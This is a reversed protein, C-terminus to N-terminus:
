ANANQTYGPGNLAGLFARTFANAMEIKIPTKEVFKIYKFASAENKHLLADKVIAIAYIPGGVRIAIRALETAFTCRSQHFHFDHLATIGHASGSRRLKHMEVNIPVSKEAGAQAYSNGSRTIFVLDKNQPPAKAERMLRRVSCAYARLRELQARAIWVRGTVGFKTHIPPSGGPGVNLWFMDPSNPDPVARNLTQIKLDCLTGLRMGTFFGLTLMLFFEESAHENVFTLIKDRDTASVPLLGDELTEGPAHRNPIALDTSNVLITRDFGANDVVHIPIVREKWLTSDASLLGNEHIWRYFQIVCSMRQSATSPAIEGKDRADILAGRYKVLCRDARRTPFDWWMTHSVELWNAYAHLATLNTQVTRIKVDRSTTRELAWMNVERWPRLNKWLIQPLGDIIKGKGVVTWEVASDVLQARHPVYRIFELTAM